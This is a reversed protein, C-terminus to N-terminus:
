KNLDGAKFDGTTDATNSAKTHLGLLSGIDRAILKVDDAAIALLAAFLEKAKAHSDGPISVGDLTPTNIQTIVAGEATVPSATDPKTM